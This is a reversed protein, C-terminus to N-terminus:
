NNKQYKQRYEIPSHNKFKKFIRSINKCDNFGVELALDYLSRDTAILMNALLDVRCNLIFQYISTGMENKFKVELNRRSLPVLHTLSDISVENTFNNEIFEVVELIYPNSINFKETSQRLEFHTPNIVINFPENREKLILRHILRGANYGGAEVDLAISSIPPDSLNCILEDNDVGLLSIEEPIKISNMKCIESVRLAFEDDCAFLAIPKPLKALWDDLEIHSKGWQSGELKESEFYYYNGRIREVEQRFGDAREKSWVVDKNGYFAFNTFRKKIFFEAAMKGTGVYDGTLNSYFSSRRKYNQLIVPINLQKLLNTGEHDWQAIIADAQWEKAWEVIGEKGNMTKLYSPLRYFLWPGNDKSYQVLGRLLRRSFESSYDVLLLIKFMKNKGNDPAAM